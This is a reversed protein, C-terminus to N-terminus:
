RASGSGSGPGSRSGSGSRSPPSPTRQAARVMGEGVLADEAEAMRRADVPREHDHGLLHLLGHALYRDLEAGVGRGEERAARQATDLSIVIDGLLAGPGGAPFSLVDTPQDKGRWARNLRRMAADGVVLLSLEARDCGLASLYRRARQRLRR